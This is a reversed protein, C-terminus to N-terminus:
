VVTCAPCDSRGALTYTDWQPALSFGDRRLDTVAVDWAFDPYSNEAESTLTAVALRGALLAVTDSDIGAGIFTPQACGGPQIEETGADAPLRITGDDLGRLFCHWCGATKHPRIRGVIGGAAGHTTTLWVYPKHLEQALDALFHSVRHSATADIIVDAEVCLSRLADYESSGVSGPTRAGGIRCNFGKVETYPYEHAIHSVLATIKQLGAYQWGLAWRVTNGIQLNDSDVLCLRGVGARALHMSVPSGLSGVGVVLASKKRLPMLFPARSLWAKQGGWDARVLELNFMADRARKAEREVRISLFVWDDANSRWSVEDPYVFGAAFVEGRRAAQITRAFMPVASQILRFFENPANDPDSLKPRQDLRLWFGTVRRSFVPVKTGFRLLPKSQLDTITEIVGNLFARGSFQPPVPRALVSLRGARVEQAPTEDPVILACEPSYPLFSSLPEGVHDEACAVTESVAHEHNVSLILPLQESLLTALTDHGPRWDEGERALLCLNKGVPHQHRDFLLNDSTVMPVFYPFTDPYVANIGLTSEGQLIEVRVVLQGAAMAAQDYSWAYGLADLAVIERQWEGPYRDWWATM